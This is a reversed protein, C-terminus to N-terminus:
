RGDEEHEGNPGLLLRREVEAAVWEDLDTDILPDAEKAARVHAALAADSDFGAARGIGTDHQLRVKRADLRHDDAM